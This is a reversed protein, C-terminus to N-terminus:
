FTRHLTLVLPLKMKLFLKHLNQKLVLSQWKVVLLNMKQSSSSHRPEELRVKSMLQLRCILNLSSRAGEDKGGEVSKEHEGGGVESVCVCRREECEIYKLWGKWWRWGGEGWM